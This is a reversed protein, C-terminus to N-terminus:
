FVSAINNKIYNESSINTQTASRKLTRAQDSYVATASRRLSGKLLKESQMMEIPTNKRINQINRKWTPVEM